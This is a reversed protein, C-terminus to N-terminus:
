TTADHEITTKSPYLRLALFIAMTVCLIRSLTAGFGGMFSGSMDFMAWWLNMFLHLSIVFWLNFRSRHYLWAYLVGGLTTLLLFPDIQGLITEGDRPSFSLHIAGFAVGSIIAAPWLGVRTLQVLMGFGFARFVLEENFAALVTSQYLYRWGPEDYGGLLGIVVMPLTCLLGLAMGKTFWAGEGTLGLTPERKLTFCARLIFYGVLVIMVRLLPHSVLLFDVGLNIRAQNYADSMALTMPLFTAIIVVLCVFAAVGWGDDFQNDSTGQPSQKSASM